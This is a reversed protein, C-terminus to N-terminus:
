LADGALQARAQAVREVFARARKTLEGGGAGGAAENRVLAAPLLASGVSVAAAGARIWDGANELSVGGSPVLRLFPLPALLDHVYDPGVAAAPFRRVRRAGARRRAARGGRAASRGRHRRERAASRAWGKGRRADDDHPDHDRAAPPRTTRCATCRRSRRMWETVSWRWCGGRRPRSCGPCSPSIRGGCARM